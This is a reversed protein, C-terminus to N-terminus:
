KSKKTGVEAVDGSKKDSQRNKMVLPLNVTWARTPKLEDDFSLSKGAPNGITLFDDRFFDSQKIAEHFNAYRQLPDGDDSPGSFCVGEIAVQEGEPRKGKGGLAAGRQDPAKVELSSLWV